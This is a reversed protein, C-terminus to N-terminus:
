CFDQLKHSKLQVREPSRHHMTDIQGRALSTPKSSLEPPPRTEKKVKTIVLTKPTAKFRHLYLNEEQKGGGSNANMLSEQRPCNHSSHKYVSNEEKFGHLYM